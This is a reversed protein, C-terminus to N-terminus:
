KAWGRPTAIYTQGADGDEYRRVAVRDVNGSKGCWARAVVEFWRKERDGDILEVRDGARRQALLRFLGPPFAPPSM